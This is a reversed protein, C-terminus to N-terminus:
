QRKRLTEAATVRRKVKWFDAESEVAFNRLLLINM